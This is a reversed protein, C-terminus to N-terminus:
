GGILIYSSRTWCSLYLSNQTESYDSIEKTGFLGYVYSCSLSYSPAADQLVVLHSALSFFIIQWIKLTWRHCDLERGLALNSKTPLRDRLLRWALVPVKLPVQKHWILNAATFVASFDFASLSKQSFLRQCFRAAMAVQRPGSSAYCFRSTFDSVGEVDGGGM